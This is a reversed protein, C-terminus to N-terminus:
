WVGQHLFYKVVSILMMYMLKADPILRWADWHPAKITWEGTAKKQRKM